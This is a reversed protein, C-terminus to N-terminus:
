SVLEARPDGDFLEMERIRERLEAELRGEVLLELPATGPCVSSAVRLLEVTRQPHSAYKVEDRLDHLQEWRSNRPASHGNEWRSVVASTVGVIEAFTRQDCDLQERLDRVFESRYAQTDM